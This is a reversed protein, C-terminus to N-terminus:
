DKTTLYNKIKEFTKEGIGKVQKLDEISSFSGFDKRFQIIREAMVPGIGPVTMLEAKKSNNINVIKLLQNQENEAQTDSIAQNQILETKEQFARLDVVPEPTQEGWFHRYFTVVTGLLLIGTLFRIIMKEQNTFLNM